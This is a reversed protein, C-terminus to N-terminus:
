EVGFALLVNGPIATIVTYGSGVFVMGDVVVPGQMGIAGGHAEVQNVTDFQRNTDYEWLLRGDDTSLAYLMGDRGGAFLVGPIATAAAQIGAMCDGGREPDPCEREPISTYWVQEGNTPDLAVVAGSGDAFSLPVYYLAGDDVGGFGGTGRVELGRSGPWDTAAKQWVLDGQRDPDLATILRSEQQAILLRNGNALRHLIPSAPVDNNPGSVLGPCEEERAERTWGCGGSANFDDAVLQRHWLREGTDLDLAVIADTFGGDREPAHIYANGTGFYLVRNELDMTPTNWIAAGAPAYLLTGTSTERLPAPRQNFM